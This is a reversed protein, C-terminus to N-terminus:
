EAEFDSNPDEEEPAASPEGSYRVEKFQLLNTRPDIVKENMGRRAFAEQNFKAQGKLNTITATSLEVWDENAVGTKPDILGMYYYKDRAPNYAVKVISNNIGFNAGAAHSKFADTAEKIPIYDDVNNKIAEKLGPNVTENPNKLAEKMVDVLPFWSEVYEKDSGAAARRRGEAMSAETPSTVTQRQASKIGSIAATWSNIKDVVFDEFTEAPQIGRSAAYDYSHKMSNRMDPTLNGIIYEQVQEDTYGLDTMISVADKYKSGIELGKVEADRLLKPTITTSINKLFDQEAKQDWAKTFGAKVPVPKGYEDIHGNGTDILSLNYEYLDQDDGASTKAADIFANYQEARQSFSYLRGGPAQDAAVRQKLQSIQPDLSRHDGPNQRLQSTLREVEGEYEKRVDRYASIDDPIVDVHGDLLEKKTSKAASKSGMSGSLANYLRPDVTYDQQQTPTTKYFRAM